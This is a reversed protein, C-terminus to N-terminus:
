WVEEERAFVMDTEGTTSSADSESMVPLAAKLYPALRAAGQQALDVGRRGSEGMSLGAVSFSESAGAQRGLQELLEGTIMELIGLKVTAQLGSDGTDSLYRDAISYEIPGQMQDILDDIADDHTTDSADIMAKQKVEDRTITIAM